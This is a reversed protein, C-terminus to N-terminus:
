KPSGRLKCQVAAIYALVHENHVLPKIEANWLALAAVVKEPSKYLLSMILTHMIPSDHRLSEIWGSGRDIMADSVAGQAVAKLDSTFSDMSM